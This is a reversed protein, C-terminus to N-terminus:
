YTELSANVAELVKRSRERVYDQKEGREILEQLAAIVQRDVNRDITSNSSGTLVDIAQTRLGPNSDNLLVKTIATRVENENAYPKLGEMAKMRVGANPDRLALILADRVDASQARSMLINVTDGRLGPNQPDRAAAILLARIKLDDVQGSVIHQKTEDFVIQVRGDASPEVHRVHASGLDMGATHLGFTSGLDPLMRAAVFGMAILTLAGAPRLLGQAPHLTLADVLRDWWSSSFSANPADTIPHAAEELLRVRLDERCERLLAPSPLVEISDLAAHAARERILAERCDGCADLHSEVREEEDFSLEGYLLLALQGRVATCKLDDTKM